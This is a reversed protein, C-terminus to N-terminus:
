DSRATQQMANRDLSLGHRQLLNRGDKWYKNTLKEDTAVFVCQASQKIARTNPATTEVYKQELANTQKTETSASVPNFERDTSM